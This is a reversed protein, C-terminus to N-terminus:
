FDQAAFMRWSEALVRVKGGSTMRRLPQPQWASLTGTAARLAGLVHFYQDLNPPYITAVPAGDAMPRELYFYHGHEAYWDRVDQLHDASRAARHAMTPLDLVVSGFPMAHLHAHYVTQRFVGHEFFVPERYAASHFRLVRAKLALLEAELEEPVAGYCTYHDRPVILLHGEILPAHDALLFFHETEDLVGDLGAQDCFPCAYGALESNAPDM